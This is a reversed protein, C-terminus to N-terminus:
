RALTRSRRRGGASLAGDRQVAKHLPALAQRQAAIEALKNRKVFVIQGDRHLVKVIGPTLHGAAVLRLCFAKRVLPQWKGLVLDPFFSGAAKAAAGGNHILM